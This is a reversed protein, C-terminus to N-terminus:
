SDLDEGLLEKIRKVFKKEENIIDQKSFTNKLKIGDVVFFGENNLWRKSHAKEKNKELDGEIPYFLGGGVLEKDEMGQYYAMYTHIQFFDNRNVDGMSDKSKETYNM